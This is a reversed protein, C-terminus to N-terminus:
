LRGARCASSDVIPADSPDAVYRRDLMRREVGPMPSAKWSIKAAHMAVRQDFNANLDMVM